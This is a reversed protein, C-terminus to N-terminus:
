KWYTPMTGYDSLGTSNKYCDGGIPIGSNYLTPVLTYNSAGSPNLWFEGSSGTLSTCDQFMRNLSTLETLNDILDSPIALLGNCGMFTFQLNVISVNFDFLDSPVATLGTCNQFGNTVQTLGILNDLLGNPLSTLGTCGYLTFNFQTVSISFNSFLLSPLSTLGTCGYFMDRIVAVNDVGTIAAGPLSILNTAGKFSDEFSTFGVEGWQIVGTIETAEPSQSNLYLAGFTGDISIQYMGGSVYTHSLDPDNYSNVYVPESGDGYDVWCDYTNGINTRLIFSGSAVNWETIFATEVSATNQNLGFWQANCSFSLTIFLILLIKNM